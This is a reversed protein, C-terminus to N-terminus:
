NNGAFFAFLWEDEKARMIKKAKATKDTYGCLHIAGHFIVRHLEQQYDVKFKLANERVRDVSIYIEGIIKGKHESLDFTIIDTYTDHQLFQKNMELLSGDSVFIYQLASACGTENAISATIFSSLLRKNKLQSQVENDAFKCAM